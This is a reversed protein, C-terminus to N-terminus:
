VGTSTINLTTAGTNTFGPIFRIPVGVLKASYNAIAVTQANASGGSTGGYTGQEPFPAAMAAGASVAILFAAFLAAGIKRIM